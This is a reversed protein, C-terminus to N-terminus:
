KKERTKFGAPVAFLDDSLPETSIGTVTSTMSFSGMKALMAGMPGEADIKIQLETHLPVGSEAMSRYMAAMTRAQGPQAKAQQPNMMFFGKEAMATYFRAYDAQGPAEKSLWVPGSVTSKLAMGKAEEGGVGSMDITAVMEYGQATYGAIQRTQGTPTMKVGVDSTAVAGMNDRVQALDWVEAEKKREDLSIMRQADLDFITVMKNGRMTVETRMKDGKIYTVAPGEGSMGMGKGGQTMTITVDAFAPAAALAVGIAVIAMWRRM